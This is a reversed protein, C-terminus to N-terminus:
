QTGVLTTGINALTADAVAPAILELVDGAALTVSAAFTFTAVTAGIAYNVSGKSVGNVQIDIAKALTSAVKSKSQSNTLNIPLVISRGAVFRYMLQAGTPAGAFFSAIDYPPLSWVPDTGNSRLWTGSAGLALAVWGAGGRVVLMGRTNGIIIDLIASLTRATPPAVGGTINALITQNAQSRLTAKGVGAGANIIDLADAFNITLAPSLVAGGNSQVAVGTGPASGGGGGTRNFLALLFRLFGPTMQGNPLVIPTDYSPIDIPNAM